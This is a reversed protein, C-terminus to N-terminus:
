SLISKEYVMSSGSCASPALMPTRCITARGSPPAVEGFKELRASYDRLRNIFLPKAPEVKKKHTHSVYTKM